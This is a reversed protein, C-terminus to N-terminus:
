MWRFHDIRQKSSNIKWAVKIDLHRRGKMLKRVALMGRVRDGYKVTRPDGGFFFATQKWCTLMSEPGTSFTVPRHCAGFCIEFWSLVANVTGQRSCNVQFSAAMESAAEVGCSHLDLDLVCFSPSLLQDQDVAEVVPETYAAEKMPTYDFGWVKDYYDFHQRKYDQHELLAMHLKARDPFMLGGPKLWKDRAQLADDLRAEYMLFYGMWQSVIIDVQELGGPLKVVTSPNGCVFELVELSFGNKAAIKSGVSVLEPEAEMAIVKQAGAKAAFLSCLGLGASVELVVKGKFLHANALIAKQYTALTVNDRLVDEHVGYHNYSDFYYDASSATLSLGPWDKLFAHQAPVSSM